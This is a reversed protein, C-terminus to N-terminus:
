ERRAHGDGNGGRAPVTDEDNEGDKDDAAKGAPAPPGGQEAKEWPQPLGFRTRARAERARQEMESQWDYGRRAQYRAETELGAAVRDSEAKTIRPDIQEFGEFFWVHPDAEDMWAGAPLVHEIRKAEAVWAAFIRDLVHAALHSQEIVIGHRYLLCDMQASSATHQSSDCAAVLYPMGLCRPIESLIQRKFDGYTTPPQEAKVQNLDWGAPLTTLMNRELEILDMSEVPEAEGDPPADTHLVAAWDAATEAAAIVALTYRRLQAFLPLAPLLEPLGRSQGPRDVRFWHIMLNAPVRDFDLSALDAPNGPHARLLHYERPNGYPDFRIGDVASPAWYPLGPTAIQDAEILRIDLQVGTPLAPNTVLLAFAEGDQARAMRMTRLKEALRVAKAWTEFEKEIAANAAADQLLMQLRPGSGVLDNALTLIIGRAYSNNAVEYRARARLVRRVEPTAAADPSLLDANLWHRANEGSTQAADYRARM